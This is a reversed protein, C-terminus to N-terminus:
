PTSAPDTPDSGADEEDGDLHGDGDRDIGMRTGSGPPTCTYTLERHFFLSGQRLLTDAVPPFAQRNSIFYGGGVYLFGLEAPGVRTQAVLDCEGVEARAILLDIRGYAAAANPNTLTVQQGVIPAM